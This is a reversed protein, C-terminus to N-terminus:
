KYNNRMKDLTNLFETHVDELIKGILPNDAVVQKNLAYTNHGIIFHVEGKPSVEIIITAKM